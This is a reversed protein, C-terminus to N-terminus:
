PLRRMVAELRGSGNRGIWTASLKSDSRIQYRLTNRGEEEFVLEDGIVRGKREVFELDQGPVVGPGLVYDAVLEDSATSDITLLIERGNPYFGYWKGLFPNPRASGGGILTSRIREPTRLQPSPMRGWSQDCAPDGPSPRAEAFRVICAGFRRVFLGTAAAGHGVLHSPQDIVMHEAGRQALIARAREGRGGPDFDDGHFLFLQVRARRVGQLLPYLNGANNRWSDYFDSFSGYAAPATAIVADVEDSAGAAMLAIFAGFSQGALVIRGYGQKRLKHVMGVLAQSSADLTDSRRMRNLRYVDWGADRLTGLYLPNPAEADEVEISRGHSWIVAGKAKDAGLMPGDPWARDLRIQALGPTAVACALVFTLISTRVFRKLRRVM